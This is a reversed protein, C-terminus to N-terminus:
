EQSWVPSDVDTSYDGRWLGDRSTGAFLIDGFGFVRIVNSNYLDPLRSFNGGPKKITDLDDQLIANPLERIVRTGAGLIIMGAAKTISNFSTNHDKSSIWTTGYDETKLIYGESSCLYLTGPYNSDAFLDTFKTKGELASLPSSSMGFSYFPTVSSWSNEGPPDSCQFLDAPGAFWYNTGDWAGAKILYKSIGTPVLNTGNWWLLEPNDDLPTGVSAFLNGNLAFLRTIQRTNYLNAPEYSTGTSALRFLGHSSGNSLSVFIDGGVKVLGSVIGLNIPGKIKRWNTTDGVTVTRYFLSGACIYYREESDITVNLMDGTIVVSNPLSNDVAKEEQELSYFIGESDDSCSFFFIGGVVLLFFSLFNWIYGRKTDHIVNM